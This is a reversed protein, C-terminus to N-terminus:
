FSRGFTEEFKKDIKEAGKNNIDDMRKMFDDLFNPQKEEMKKIEDLRKTRLACRLKKKIEMKEAIKREMEDQLRRKQETLERDVRAEEAILQSMKEDDSSIQDARIRFENATCEKEEKARVLMGATQNLRQKNEM